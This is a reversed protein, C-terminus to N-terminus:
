FIYTVKETAPDMPDICYSIAKVFCYGVEYDTPFKDVRGLVDLIDDM